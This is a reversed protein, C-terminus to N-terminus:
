SVLSLLLATILIFWKLEEDRITRNSYKLVNILFVKSCEFILLRKENNYNIIFYYFDKGEQPEKNSSLLEIKCLNSNIYSKFTKSDTPGIKEIQSCNFRYITQRLSNNIVKSVRISGTVFIYDYDVCFKNKFKILFIGMALFFIIPLVYFIVNFLWYDNLNMFNILIFFGIISFAFSLVAFAFLIKYKKSETKENLCRSSEEYMLEQM